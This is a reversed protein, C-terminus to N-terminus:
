ALTEKMLDGTFRRALKLESRFAAETASWIFRLPAGDVGDTLFRTHQTYGFQMLAAIERYYEVSAVPVEFGTCEAYHDLAHQLGWVVTGDRVIEPIMEQCHAFDYAPDGIAALEWDSLAVIRGDAWVEEGLGNNGKCLVVRAPPEPERERLSAVAEALLPSPETRYEAIRQVWHDIVTRACDAPTAPAPFLDGFGRAQWDILHVAALASVHEKSLAIRVEDFEPATEHLEPLQWDGEVLDRVYAVRGDPMWRPEDEFWLTRAVPVGTPALRAYVEYEDRLEIPILGGAPHDRRVMVRRVGADSAIDVSWTQRSVGRSLRTVEVVRFDEGVLGLEAARARFWGEVFGLDELSKDTM